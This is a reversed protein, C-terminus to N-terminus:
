DIHLRLLCYVALQIPNKLAAIWASFLMGFRYDSLGWLIWPPYFIFLRPCFVLLVLQIISNRRAITLLLNILPRNLGCCVTIPNTAIFGNLAGSPRTEQGLLPTKVSLRSSLGGLSSDNKKASHVNGNKNTECDGACGVNPTRQCDDRANKLIDVVKSDIKAKFVRLRKTVCDMFRLNKDGYATQPDIFAPEATLWESIVEVAEFIARERSVQATSSASTSINLQRHHRPHHAFPNSPYITSSLHENASNSLFQACM